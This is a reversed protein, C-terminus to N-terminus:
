TARRLGRRRAGVARRQVREFVLDDEGGAWVGDHRQGPVGLRSAGRLPSCCRERPADSRNMVKHTAPRGPRSASSDGRELTAGRRAHARRGHGRRRSGSRTTSTTTRLPARRRARPRLHVHPDRDSGTAQGVDIRDKAESFLSNSDMLQNHARAFCSRAPRAPATPTTAAELRQWTRCRNARRRGPHLGPRLRLRESGSPEEAIRGELIGTGRHETGDPAIAVLECVYRAGVAKAKSATAAGRRSAGGGARGGVAVVQRGARRRPRRDRDRLGRRAGLADPRSRAASARGERPRERLLHRGDEPPYDDADLLELTWGPLAHRLERLKNENGSALLALRDVAGRAGARPAHADATVSRGASPRSGSPRARRPPRDRSDEVEFLACRAEMSRSRRRAPDVPSENARLEVELRREGPRIREILRYALIRLPWLSVLVVVTTIVAGTYYGAGAAIGIAAVVWLSAATTLGRVSLGQRIIAGAGLFGIGTVIQAAIRTPDYTVGSENSFHFDHWGYASVLTFLAAGVAVLLHTRLGAERERIEREVGIAGGLVGALVVRLLVEAFHLEPVCPRWRTAAARPRDGRNGRRRPRAARRAADRDLPAREATAQVEILRGDGAM